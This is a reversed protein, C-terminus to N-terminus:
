NHFLKCLPFPYLTTLVIFSSYGLFHKKESVDKYYFNFLYGALNRFMKQVGIVNDIPVIEM